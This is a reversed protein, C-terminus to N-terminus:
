GQLTELLAAMVRPRRHTSTTMLVLERSFEDGGVPTIACHTAIRELGAWHPVLSVGVNDEVLMAIAELADLDFVPDVSLGQRKLYAEALRGGWSHPDYRIYLHRQLTAAISDQPKKRSLLVLPERKLSVVTLSKALEFTPAVLIAADIEGNM